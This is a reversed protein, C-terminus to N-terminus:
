LELSNMFYCKLALKISNESVVESNVMMSAADAKGTSLEIIKAMVKGGPDNCNEANFSLYEDGGNFNEETFRIATLENDNGSTVEMHLYSEIPNPIYESLFFTSRGDDHKGSSALHVEMSTEPQGFNMGQITVSNSEAISVTVDQSNDEGCTMSINASWAAQATLLVLTSFLIRNM